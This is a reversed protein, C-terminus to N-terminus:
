STSTMLFLLTSEVGFAAILTLHEASASPLLNHLEETGSSIGQQPMSIFKGMFDGGRGGSKRIAPCPTDGHTSSCCVLFQGFHVSFWSIAWLFISKNYEYLWFLLSAGCIKKRRRVHAGVKLNAGADSGGVYFQGLENGCLGVCTIGLRVGTRMMSSLSLGEKDGDAYKV